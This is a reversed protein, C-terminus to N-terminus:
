PWDINAGLVELPGIGERLFMWMSMLPALLDSKVMTYDVAVTTKEAGLRGEAKVILMSNHDSFGSFCTLYSSGQDLVLLLACRRRPSGKLPAAVEFFYCYHGSIYLYQFYLL